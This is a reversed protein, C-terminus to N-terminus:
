LIHVVVAKHDSTSMHKIYVNEVNAVLVPDCFIYDLRRAVFPNNRSWTYEKLDGKIVRWCDQLQWTSVFKQFGDVNNTNHPAGAIIDLDNKLVMNFDGCLIINEADLSNLHTKLNDM